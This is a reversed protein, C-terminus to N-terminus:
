TKAQQILLITLHQFTSNLSHKPFRYSTELQYATQSNKAHHNVALWRPGCLIWSQGAIFWSGGELVCSGPSRLLRAIV